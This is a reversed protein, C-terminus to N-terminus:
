YTPTCTLIVTTTYTGAETTSSIGAQYGIRVTDDSAGSSYAVEANTETFAAWLDSGFRDPTGSLTSDDTTYGFAETGPSPFASPSGNSGSHDTIDTGTEYELVGTYRAYVTYGNAANTAVNLDHAGIGNTSDTVTGLPVTTTTSAVNTTAGNVDLGSGVSGITFTISPDVTMSVSQGSTYIFSVVGEDVPDTSCDTNNYTNLIAYYGTDVSSGNTIGDLALTRDSSGGPTEATDNTVKVVGNVTSAATWNAPTPIFTTNSDDLDISTTTDMGTPVTGGDATTAFEIQICKIDSTTVNDWTSDYGVGTESPRSDTLSLSGGTLTAAQVTSARLWM